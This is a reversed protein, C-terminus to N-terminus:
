LRETSAFRRRGGGGVSSSLSRLKQKNRALSHILGENVSVVEGVIHETSLLIKQSVQNSSELASIKVTLEEV